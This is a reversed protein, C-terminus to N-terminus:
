LEEGPSDKSGEAQTQDFLPFAPLGEPPCLGTRGKGKASSGTQSTALVQKQDLEECM